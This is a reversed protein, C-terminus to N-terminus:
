NKKKIKPLSYLVAVVSILFIIGVGVTTRYMMQQQLNYLEGISQASSVMGITKGEEYIPIYTAILIQGAKEVRGTYIEGRGLVVDKIKQDEIRTGLFRGKGTVSPSAGVRENDLFFVSRIDTDVLIKDALDNLSPSKEKIKMQFQGNPYTSEAIYKVSKANETVAVKIRKEMFESTVNHIMFSAGSFIIIFAVMLPFLLKEKKSFHICKLIHHYLFGSLLIEAVISLVQFFGKLSPLTNNIENIHSAAMVALFFFVLSWERSDLGKKECKEVECSIRCFNKYALYPFVLLPLASTMFWPSTAPILIPVLIGIGLFYQWKEKVLTLGILTFGILFPVYILYISSVIDTLHFFLCGISLTFLGLSFIIARYNKRTLLDRLAVWLLIVTALSFAYSLVFHLINLKSLDM